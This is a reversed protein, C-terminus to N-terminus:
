KRAQLSYGALVCQAYKNFSAQIYLPVENGYLKVYNIKEFRRLIDVLFIHDDYLTRSKGREAVM